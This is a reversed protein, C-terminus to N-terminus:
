TGMMWCAAGGIAYGLALGALVDSPWHADLLYRLAGCIGAMAWFVVAAPPYLHSLVVTMAVASATHSSPFSEKRNAHGLHPGLFAGAGEHGPRVRGALKKVGLSILAAAFVAALVWVAAPFGHAFRRADLEWILAAVVVACAGQGYQAFWRSERKLDGKFRLSLTVRAGTREVAMAVAVLALFVLLVTWNM